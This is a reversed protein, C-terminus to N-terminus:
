NIRHEISIVAVSGSVVASTDEPLQETGILHSVAVMKDRCYIQVCSMLLPQCHIVRVTFLTDSRGLMQLRCCKNFHKGTKMVVLMKM